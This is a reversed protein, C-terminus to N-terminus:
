SGTKRELKLLRGEIADFRTLSRGAFENLLRAVHKTLQERERASAAAQVFGQALTMMESELSEVRGTMSGVHGSLSGLHQTMRNMHQTMDNMRQTMDDMRQTMDNMRQTMDDMRKATEASARWLHRMDSTLATLTATTAMATQALSELQDAHKESTAELKAVAEMLGLLVDPGKVKAM